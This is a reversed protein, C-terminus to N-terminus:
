DKIYKMLGRSALSKYNGNEDNYIFFAELMPDREVIDLSRDLGMVMFATAYADAIMCDSAIVTASLLEHQIPYGTRPDITHAFKKGDKIYFNRYNGSTAMAVNTLELVEELDGAVSLSDDKPKSIGVRWSNGKSNQGSVVLEGGIEVMFNVIGKERLLDAIVDCSYGKAIASADLMIRQDDKLVRGNSIDILESGVFAMISDVRQATVDSRSKFGFGWLNVLPAVTIDFAGDTIRSIEKSKQFLTTFWKDLVVTTDNNNVRSIVSNKNFMSLSNDFRELELEISDKLDTPYEYIIHYITGFIRGENRQFPAVARDDSNYILMSLLTIAIVSLLILVKRFRYIFGAM